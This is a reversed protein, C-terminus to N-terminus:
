PRRRITESPTESFASKYDVAFRGLHNFGVDLAISSVNRNSRDQLLQARARRLRYDKLYAAPTFGTHMRFSEFLKPRSVGSAAEIDELRITERYNAEIFRKARALYEPVKPDLAQQIQASYNSPQSVLLGRILSAEIAQSFHACGYLERSREIETLYYKVMRWWASVSGDVADMSESFVLLGDVRRGLMDSLTQELASRQITVLIKRCNGAVGLEFPQEPSTVIGHNPDSLVIGPSARLEQEGTLPLSLNYNFPHQKRDVNIRQETGSEGLCGVSSSLGRLLLGSYNFRFRSAGSVHLSHPGWLNEQYRCAGDWDLGRALISGDPKLSERFLM